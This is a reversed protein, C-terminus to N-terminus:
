SRRTGSASNALTCTTFLPGSHSGERFLYRVNGSVTVRALGAAEQFKGDVEFQQEVFFRHGGEREGEIERHNRTLTFSGEKEIKGTFEGGLSKRQMDLPTASLRSGDQQVRILFPEYHTVTRPFTIASDQSLPAPLPQPSCMAVQDTQTTEYEGSFNVSPTLDAERRGASPCGLLTLVLTARGCKAVRM